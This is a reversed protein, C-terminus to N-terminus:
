INELMNAYMDFSRRILEEVDIDDELKEVALNLHGYVNLACLGHMNAWIMVALVDLDYGQFYGNMQCAKVVEVLTNFAEEGEQWRPDERSINLIHKLPEELIFMIEYFDPKELAFAIYCRGMAKLREFPDKVHSLTKFDYALMRFGIQHITHMIEAKDKYYLYITTPSIGVRAAIKRMSTNEYGEKVFLSRAANLIEAALDREKRKKKQPLEM